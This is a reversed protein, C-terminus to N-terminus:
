SVLALPTDTNPLLGAGASGPPHFRAAVEPSAPYKGTGKAGHCQM